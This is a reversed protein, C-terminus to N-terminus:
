TLLCLLSSYKYTCAKDRTEKEFNLTRGGQWRLCYALPSRWKRGSERGPHADRSETAGCWSLRLEPARSTRVQQEDVVRTFCAEVFTLARQM